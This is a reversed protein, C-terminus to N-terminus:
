ARVTECGGRQGVIEKAFQAVSSKGLRLKQLHKEKKDGLRGLPVRFRRQPL